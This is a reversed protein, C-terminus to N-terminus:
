SNAKAYVEKRLCNAVKKRLKCSTISKIRDILEQETVVSQDVVAIIRDM